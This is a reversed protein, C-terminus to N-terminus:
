LPLQADPTTHLACAQDYADATQPETPRDGIALRVPDTAGPTAPTGFPLGLHHHRYHEVQSVASEWIAAQPGATPRPGLLATLYDAPEGMARHVADATQRDLAAEIRALRATRAAETSPPRDAADSVPAPMPAPTRADSTPRTSPDAPARREAALTATPQTTLHTIEAQDLLQILNNWEQQATTPDPLEYLTLDVDGRECLDAVRQVLVAAGARIGDRTDHALTATLQEPEQGTDLLAHVGAAARSRVM